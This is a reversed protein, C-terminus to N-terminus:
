DEEDPMVRRGRHPEYCPRMPPLEGIKGALAASLYLMAAPDNSDLDVTQGDRGAIFRGDRFRLNLINDAVRRASSLFEQRGTAQHLQLMALVAAPDSCSTQANLAPQGAPEGLEGLGNGRALDAAMQWMFADKTLRYATAYALLYKCDGPGARFFDGMPGYYGDKQFVMGTLITGDTHIANFVNERPQYAWKGYAALDEVASSLFEQGERGLTEGIAMRIMGAQVCIAKIQRATSIAGERVVHGCLMGSFQHIARDTWHDANPLYRITFQYGAMGTAPDRTEIFRHNLRKAWVLPRADGTFRHLAAAAYYLDSGTNTFTLGRGTFWVQRGVYENDWLRGMPQGYSGHRSFDLVSWDYIHANWFAEIFRKTAAPDVRWMLEYHPYVCKMEHVGARYGVWDDALADYACHGGWRLLGSPDTLNAFAYGLAEAAAARYHESGTLATLGDLVAFFQQQMALNSLIVDNAGRRNFHWPAPTAAGNSSDIRDVFLPTKKPGYRDRAHEILYEAHQRVARLYPCNGSSDRGSGAPVAKNM